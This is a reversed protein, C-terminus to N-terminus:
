PQAADAGRLTRLYIVLNEIQRQNLTRGWPPMGTSLGVAGGGSRIASVLDSDSRQAQFASDALSRPRPDLNFANFGDGAGEDGHCTVCYHRYLTRGERQNYGLAPIPLQSASYIAEASEASTSEAAASTSRSVRTRAARPTRGQCGAWALALGVLLVSASRRAKM